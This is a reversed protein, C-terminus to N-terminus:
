VCFIVQLMCAILIIIIIIVHHSINVIPLFLKNQINLKFHWFIYVIQWFNMDILNIKVMSDLRIYEKKYRLICIWVYMTRFTVAADGDKKCGRIAHMGDGSTCCWFLRGAYKYSLSIRELREGLPDNGQRWADDRRASYGNWFRWIWLRARRARRMRTYPFLAFAYLLVDTGRRIYVCMRLFGCFFWCCPCILTKRTWACVDNADSKEPEKHRPFEVASFTLDTVIYKQSCVGQRM